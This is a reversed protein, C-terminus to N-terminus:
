GSSRLTRQDGDRETVGIRDFYELLPVVYKRSTGVVDRFRAATMRGEARLTRELRGRIEAIQAARYLHAGVRVVEGLGLLADFAAQAGPIKSRRVDLAVPAFAVPALPHEGAPLLTDFLAAQEPTLRPAHDPTAYWGARKVLRGAAVPAVL